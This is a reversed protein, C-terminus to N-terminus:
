MLAREIQWIVWPGVFLSLLALLVAMLWIQKRRLFNTM